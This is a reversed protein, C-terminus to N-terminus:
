HSQVGPTLLLILLAIVVLIAIGQGVTMWGRHVTFVFSVATWAIVSFLLMGNHSDVQTLIALLVALWATTLLADSLRFQFLRKTQPTSASNENPARDM